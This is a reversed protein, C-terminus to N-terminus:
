RARTPRGQEDWQRLHYYEDRMREFAERPVARHRENRDVTAIREPLTDDAKTVGAKVNFLRKLTFIRDGIVMLEEWSLGWGTVMDIMRALWVPGGVARLYFKCMVTANYLAMLNHMRHVLLAKGEASYPSLMSNYGFEPIRVGSEVAFAIADLHCTGRSGCAYNLASSWFARPDHMLRELGKVEVTLVAAGKELRRAAARSGDALLDGIGERRGVMEVLTLLTQPDGWRLILGGTQTHDILGREFAEIAFAITNGLPITDLGLRNALENARVVSELNDIMLMSGFSGLTEYEPGRGYTGSGNERGLVVWCHVPCANCSSQKHPYHQHLAKGSIRPAQASFDGSSFNKIGVAGREEHTELSATTGYRAFLGFKVELDKHAQASWELLKKPEAIRLGRSGKVAVGKLRKSGMVAGLGTRGAVRALEGEFVIAALRSLVEGAPGICGVKAEPDTEAKIAADAEFTDKGWLHRAPRIEATDDRIWLYAPEASAGTVVIADLASFRCEAGWTGGVSAEGFIGTLPSKVVVSTRTAGPVLTGTLLGPAFIM